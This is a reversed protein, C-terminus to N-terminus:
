QTISTTRLLLASIRAPRLRQPARRQAVATQAKPPAQLIARLVQPRLHVRPRLHARLLRQVPRATPAQVARCRPLRLESILSLRILARPVGSPRIRDLSEM